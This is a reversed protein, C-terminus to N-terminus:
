KWGGGLAQYLQVISSLQTYQENIVDLSTGLVREQATLVELYSFNNYGSLLLEQSDTLAQELLERQEQKLGMKEGSAQYVYLADSVDKAANILAGRYHLRAQEQELQAVEYQTKIRRGQLIPATLGGMINAFLSNKNFWNDLKLSQLGGQAGITLSPYFQARAVNTMEFARRYNNEAIMVDPRNALLQMPVGIKLETDINQEALSSREISRPEEGMLLSLTSELIRAQTKLDVLLAQAQLYQAHTQQVATSTIFGVGAEKLAETTELSTRRTDITEETVKIQEDLALLSYYTNAVAAILGTKVARHAAITQLYTADFARKQSRIKGWIDAEWGLNGALDFVNVHDKGTQQLAAGQQGNKSPYALTYQGGASLTPYFGAKGQKVYAEAVEMQKLAVRIDINNELAVEIYNVLNRDTFLERWSVDAMTLSDEPIMDTRFLETKVIDDPKQYDKAVFCSQMTLLVLTIWIFRSINRM